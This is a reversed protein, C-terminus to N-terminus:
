LINRIYKSNTYYINQQDVIPLKNDMIVLATNDKLRRIEDNTFLKKSTTKDGQKIETFGTLDSIYNLTEIDSLGPLVVKTKLNNLISLANDHGYIQKLQTISQLCVLFSVESSRATSIINTFNQIQGINATEDAMIFVPLGPTDILHDIFQSFFCAMFPSLYNAKNTPYSIYLATPQKRLDEARFDTRQIALKDTFLQLQSALTIKISSMTKPSELSQRFINFQQLASEGGHSLLNEIAENDNNLIMKLALSVDKNCMLSACWLSQAMQIFVDGGTKKGTSLEIALGGNILLSQGRLMIERDDKCQDLINYHLGNTDLPKYLITKVGISEQYKHTKEWLEGKPDLIIKSGIINNQLLNPIFISSTKGAGTPAVLLIHEFCAKESLSYNKTLQISNGLLRKSDYRDGLESTALKEQQKFALRGGYIALIGVFLFGLKEILILLEM